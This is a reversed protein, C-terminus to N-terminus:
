PRDESTHISPETPSSLGHVPRPAPLSLGGATWQALENGDPAFPRFWGDETFLGALDEWRKEDAYRAELDRIDEIADLTELNRMM